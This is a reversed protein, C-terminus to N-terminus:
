FHSSDRVEQALKQPAVLIVGPQASPELYTGALPILALSVIEARACPLPTPETGTSLPHPGTTAPREPLTLPVGIHSLPSQQSYDWM